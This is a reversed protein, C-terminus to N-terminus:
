GGSPDLLESADDLGGLLVEITSVIEELLAREKGLAQAQEPNDWIQSRGIREVEVLREKKTEFDFIGRLSETRTRFEKITLVIPNVELM